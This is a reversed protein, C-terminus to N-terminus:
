RINTWMIRQIIGYKKRAVTKKNICSQLELLVPEADLLNIALLVPDFQQSKLVEMDEKRSLWNSLNPCYIAM